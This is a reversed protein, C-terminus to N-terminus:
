SAEKNVKSASGQRQSTSGEVSKEIEDITELIKKRLELASKSGKFAINKAQSNQASGGFQQSNATGDLVKAFWSACLLLGEYVYDDDLLRAMDIFKTTIKTQTGDAEADPGCLACLKLVAKRIAFQQEATVMNQKKLISKGSHTDVFIEFV